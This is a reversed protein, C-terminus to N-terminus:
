SKLKNLLTQIGNELFGDLKELLASEALHFPNEDSNQFVINGNTKFALGELNLINSACGEQDKIYEEAM